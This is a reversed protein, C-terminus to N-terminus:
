RTRVITEGNKPMPSQIWLIGHLHNPMVVFQDLEVNPFHNPISNWCDVVIRGAGSLRVVGNALDGLLRARRHTVVTIFYAGAKSYDYGRVRHRNQHRRNM